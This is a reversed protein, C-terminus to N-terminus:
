SAIMLHKHIKQAHTQKIKNSRRVM